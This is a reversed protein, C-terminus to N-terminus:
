VTFPTGLNSNSRFPLHRGRPRQGGTYKKEVWLQRPGLPPTHLAIRLRRRKHPEGPAAPLPPSPRRQPGRPRQVPHCAADRRGTRPRQRLPALDVHQLRDTPVVVLRQENTELLPERVVILVLHGVGQRLLVGVEARREGIGVVPSRFHSGRRAIATVGEHHAA